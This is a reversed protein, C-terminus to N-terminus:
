PGSDSTMRLSSTVDAEDHESDTSWRDGETNHENGVNTVRTATGARHGALKHAVKKDVQGLLSTISAKIEHLRQLVDQAYVGASYPKILEALYEPAM